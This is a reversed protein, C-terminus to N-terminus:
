DWDKQTGTLRGTRLRELVAEADWPYVAAGGKVAPCTQVGFFHIFRKMEEGGIAKAIDATLVHPPQNRIKIKAAKLNPYAQKM